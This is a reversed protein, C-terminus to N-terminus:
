IIHMELSFYDIAKMIHGNIKFTSNTLTLILPGRLVKAIYGSTAGPCEAALRMDLSYVRPFIASQVRIVRM